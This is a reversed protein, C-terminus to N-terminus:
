LNIRVGISHNGQFPNTAVWSYDVAFSGNKEKGFPMEVTAGACPGTFATSNNDASGQGKEYVYGGRLAFYNKFGYELGGRFQDKSFSNSTFTGAFSLRHAESMRYIYTIGINLLSPMEFKASRQEMTLSTGTSTVLGRVSFGDGSFSMPPGVNRLAIGFSFNDKRLPNEKSGLRTVYQIGADFAVGQANANAISESIIKVAVGGHISNSFTKAYGLGINIYRPSFVSGTGEPQDVTTVAIDGFGMSMIGLGLVGAEGVKQTLGFSNISTGSGVLWRTHAFLVETKRTFSIGAVNMYMAELGQISASNASGWGTSRAWPNILLETAGAQGARDENGANVVPSAFLMASAAFAAAWIKRKKMMYTFQM